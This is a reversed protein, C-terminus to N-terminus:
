KAVLAISAGPAVGDQVANLDTPDKTMANGDSDIRAEIRMKPPLPQGMMSDASTLDFTLPFTGLALRKVASPPGSTEGAARAIVFIVAGPPVKAGPAVSLTIHIPPGSDASPAAASSQMPSDSSPSQMPMGAAAPQAEVPPHQAAKAKMQSLVDKLRAEQEPHHKIAEAIAADADSDHHNMTDLWALAVFADTFAPDGKTATILMKQAADNQGMSMRVLAQYTLAHPDNPAKALIIETQQYVAMLNERDFYAKALDNRLKLDDPSKAVAAELAKLEADPQAPAQQQPVGAQPQMTGGTTPQGSERPKSQQVVYWGIGALIAASLLGWAFGKVAPSLGGAPQTAATSLTASALTAKATAPAPAPTAHVGDLQRLVKTAEGELRSREADADPDADDLERLQRILADRKAELDRTEVDSVAPVAASKATKAAPKSRKLTYLIMFGIVLGSLLMGAASLWDTM